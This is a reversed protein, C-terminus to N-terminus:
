IHIYIFKRTIERYDTTIWVSESANTIVTEIKSGSPNSYSITENDGHNFNPASSIRAIDKTTFYLYGSETWQGSDARRIKTRINYNTNPTLGNVTYTLGSIDQWANGNLSYQVWDISADANWHVSVSALDASSVYHETFNAYQPQPQPIDIYISTSGTKTGYYNTTPCSYSAGVTRGRANYITVTKDFLTTTANQPITYSGPYTSGDIVFTGTQTSGNWSTGTTTVTVVYRVQAINSDADKSVVSLSHNMTVTGSMAM